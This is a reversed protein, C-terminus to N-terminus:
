DSVAHTYEHYAIDDKKALDWFIIDGMGFSLNGTSPSYGAGDGNPIRVTAEIQRGIGVFGISPLYEYAYKDIYWYVNAEDFHTTDTETYTPPTYRFDSAESYAEDGQYNLTKVYTGDLYYGPGLLRPITVETLTSNEPDFPYVNGIGDTHILIDEYAIVEGFTADVFCRWIAYPENPLLVKWVLLFLGGTPYVVLETSAPSSLPGQITVLSTAYDIAQADTLSPSVGVQIEPFYRGNAMHVRNDSGIHVAYEGGYVPVGNYNQGFKIHTVGHSERIQKVVLDALDDRMNFIARNDILFSRAVNVTNGFYSTTKHGYLSAPTSTDEDWRITWNNGYNSNFQEWAIIQAPNPTVQSWLFTRTIIALFM